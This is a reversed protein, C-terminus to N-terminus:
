LKPEDNMGFMEEMREIGTLISLDKIVEVLHDIQSDGIICFIAGAIDNPTAENIAELLEPWKEHAQHYGQQITQIIEEHKKM